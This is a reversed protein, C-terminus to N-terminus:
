LFRADGTPRLHRSFCCLVVTESVTYLRWRGKTSLHFLVAEVPGSTYGRDGRHARPLRRERVISRAGVLRLHRTGVTRGVNAQFCRSLEPVPLM